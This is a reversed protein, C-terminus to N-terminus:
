GPAQLSWNQSAFSRRQGDGSAPNAEVLSGVWMVQIELRFEEGLDRPLVVSLEMVQSEGVPAVRVPLRRDTGAVHFGINEHRIGILAPVEFRLRMQRPARRVLLTSLTSPGAWWEAVGDHRVMRMYWNRELWIGRGEADAFACTPHDAGPPPVARRAVEARWDEYRQRALSWLTLDLGLREPNARAYAAVEDDDADHSAVNRSDDPLPPRGTEVPWWRCFDDIQETPVLWRVRRVAAAMRELTWILRGERHFAIDRGDFVQVLSMAQMNFLRDGYHRAFGRFGLAKAPAHLRLRPERLIHAFLSRAHAVPERVTCLVDVAPDLGRLAGIGAHGEVFDHRELLEKLHAPTRIDGQLVWSRDRPFAAAMRTGLTQGGTKPIHLYYIM